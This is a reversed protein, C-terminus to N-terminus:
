KPMEVLEISSVQIEPWLEYVIIYADEPSNARVEFPVIQNGFVKGKIVYTPM